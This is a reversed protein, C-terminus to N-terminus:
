FPESTIQQEEPDVPHFAAPLIVGELDFLAVNGWRWIHFPADFRVSEPHWYIVGRGLNQDLDGVLEHLKKMFVSQGERTFPYPNIEPNLEVGEEPHWPYATEAVVVPKDTEAIALNLTCRLDCLDGHWEPYYSFAVGDFPIGHQQVHELYWSTRKLNGTCEIHLWRFPLKTEAASYASTLGRHAAKQIASFSDWNKAWRPDGEFEVKGIPWLMGNTIENGLQVYSIEIGEEIFRTFVDHTYSEVAELLEPLDLNKWLKPIYQKSPDAWTDSYHLNIMLEAGIAKVRKALRLTYELDNTVIGEFKPDVFVRLRFCNMGAEHLLELADGAEAGAASRYLAGAQEYVELASVDAGELYTSHPPQDLACVSVSLCAASLLLVFLRTM